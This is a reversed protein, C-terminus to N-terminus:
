IISLSNKIWCFLCSSLFSEKNLAGKGNLDISSPLIWNWNLLLNLGIHESDNLFQRKNNPKANDCITKTLKIRM